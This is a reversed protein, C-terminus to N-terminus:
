LKQIIISSALAAFLPQRSTQDLSTAEPAISPLEFRGLGVMNDFLLESYAKKTGLGQVWEESVTGLNRRSFIRKGDVWSYYLSPLAIM